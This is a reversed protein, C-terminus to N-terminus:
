TTKALDPAFSAVLEHAWAAYGAENPHFGDAAFMEPTLEYSRFSMYHMGYAEARRAYRRGMRHARVALVGAVVRPVAPMRRPSPMGSVVILAHPSRRKVAALFADIDSDWKALSHGAILDNVGMLVVVVDPSNTGYDCIRPVLDRTALAATAGDQGIVTWTVSRGTVARIERALAAPLGQEHTPVGVGAATSEGILLLRLPLLGQGEKGTTPGTAPPLRLAGGALAARVGSFLREGM